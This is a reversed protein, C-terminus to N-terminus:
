LISEYKWVYGKALQRKGNCCASINTPAIGVYFGAEKCTDFSNLRNGYIDFQIVKRNRKSIIQNYIEDQGESKTDNSNMSEYKWYFGKGTQNPNLCCHTIYSRSTGVYEAAQKSTDFSKLRNGDIDFQVIKRPIQTIVEKKTLKKSYKFRETLPPIGADSKTENSEYKWRFGVSTKIINNCCRGINSPSSGVYEAAETLSNFSNLRNGDIDFQIIKSNRNINIQLLPPIGLESKTENSEYKWVFGKATKCDGNCCHGITSPSCGVYEAAERLCYFSKLRNGDIDFQIVKRNKLLTAAIKRKTEEHHKGSNGGLRINYGNPVLCKYQEIYKIEMDDLQNDFTICVLKFEFNEVGYKKFASKLYRCNSTNKRHNRWRTELDQTTQGIYTKSDIKNKIKYIYGM